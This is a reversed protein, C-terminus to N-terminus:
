RSQGLRAHLRPPAGQWEDILIAGGDGCAVAFSGETIAIVQGPAASHRTAEPWLSSRWVVLREGSSHTFAGPYPRTVARVLREVDCAPARWDIEGDAATRRAAWTACREDQVVRAASGAALGPLVDDLLAALEAMHREYLTGATEGPAVHFYRQGILPGSDVGADIWFLSAATIPERVLITWPIVGRGRLRPLPAPHYGVLGQRFASAFPERCIQSWGIVLGIDADLAAVQAVVDAANGDAAQIFLAGAEAADPALDVFDSHRKALEGPLTVVAAVRWDAARALAALAIRTSEVAGVVVARM